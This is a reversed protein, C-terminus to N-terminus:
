IKKTNVQNDKQLKDNQNTKVENITKFLLKKLKITKDSIIQITNYQKDPITPLTISSILQKPKVKRISPSADMSSEIPKNNKTANLRKFIEILKSLFVFDM